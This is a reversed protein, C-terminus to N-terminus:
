SQALWVKGAAHSKAVPESRLARMAAWVASSFRARASRAALARRSRRAWWWASAALRAASISPPLVHDGGRRKEGGPRWLEVDNGRSALGEFRLHAIEIELLAGRLGPAEAPQRGDGRAHGVALNDVPEITDDAAPGIRRPFPKGEESLDARRAITLGVQQQTALQAGPDRFERPPLPTHPGCATTGARAGVCKGKDPAVAPEDGAQDLDPPGGPAIGSGHGFQGGGESVTWRFSIFM